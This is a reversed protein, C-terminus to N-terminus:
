VLALPDLQDVQRPGVRQLGALVSSSTARSKMRKPWGSTVTTTTSAVRSSRFRFSTSCIRSIVSRTTTQRLRISSARRWPMATSGPLQRPLQAHRDDGVAARCPSPIGSSEPRPARPPSPFAAGTGKRRLSCGGSTSVARPRPPAPDLRGNGRSGLARQTARRSSCPSSRTTSATRLPSIPLQCPVGPREPLRLARRREEAADPAEARPPRRRQAPAQTGVELVGTSADVVRRLLDGRATTARRAPPSNSQIPVQIPRSVLRKPNGTMSRSSVNTNQIVTAPAM